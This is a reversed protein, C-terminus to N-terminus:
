KSSLFFNHLNLVQELVSHTYDNYIIFDALKIKEEDPIQNNIRQEVQGVTVKDRKVVRNIRLEFPAFVTIVKDMRKFAGSEFLIATEEIIYSDSKYQESWLDFDRAVVPHVLSNVFEIAARKEFILGAMLERDLQNNKYISKGFKSILSQKINPDNNMLEKARLDAIYVHAGLQRFVECVISKGSGIGGTIGIKIM